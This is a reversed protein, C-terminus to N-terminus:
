FVYLNNYTTVMSQVGASLTPLSTAPPASFISSFDYGNGKAGQWPSVVGAYSGGFAKVNDKYSQMMTANFEVDWLEKIEEYKEHREELFENYKELWAASYPTAGVIGEYETEFVGESHDEMWKLGAKCIYTILDVAADPEDSNKPVAFMWTTTAWEGQAGDKTPRPVARIIDGNSLEQYTHYFNYPECDSSSMAIGSGARNAHLYKNVICPNEVVADYLLELWEKTEQSEMANSLRGTAADVTYTQAFGSGVAYTTSGWTDIVGDADLDKTCERCIKFYNEWTWEGKAIYEKPTKVGYDLMMTENYYVMNAGCWPSQIGYVNNRYKLFWTDGIVEAIKAQQAENLTELLEFNAAAPFNGNTFVLDPKSGSNIAAMLSTQDYNSVFQLKVDNLYAWEVIAARVMWLWVNAQIKDETEYESGVVAWIQLTKGSADGSGSPKSATPKSPDDGTPTTPDAPKACAALAFVMIFVLLLALIRKMTKREKENKIKYM